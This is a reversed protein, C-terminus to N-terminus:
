SRLIDINITLSDLSWKYIPQDFTMVSSSQGGVYYVQCSTIPYDDNTITGNGGSFNVCLQFHNYDLNNILNPKTRTYGISAIEGQSDFLAVKIDSSYVSQAVSDKVYATLQRGTNELANQKQAEQVMALANLLVETERLSTLTLTTTHSNANYKMGTIRFVNQTGSTYNLLPNDDDIVRIVANRDFIVGYESTNIMPHLGSVTVTGITQPKGYIERLALAIDLAGEYTDVSKANKLVYEKRFGIATEMEPSDVVCIIPQPESKSVAVYESNFHNYAYTSQPDTKSKVVFRSYMNSYDQEVDVKIIYKMWNPDEDRTSVTYQHATPSTYNFDDLPTSKEFVLTAQVDDRHMWIQGQKMKAITQLAGWVTTQAANLYHMPWTTPDNYGVGETDDTYNADGSVVINNWDDVLSSVKKVMDAVSSKNTADLLGGVPNAYYDLKILNTDLYNATIPTFQGSAAEFNIQRAVNDLTYHTNPTLPRFGGYMVSFYANYVDYMKSFLNMDSLDEDIYANNSQANSNLDSKLGVNWAERTAIEANEIAVYEWAGGAVYRGNYGPTKALTSFAAEGHTGIVMHTNDGVASIMLNGNAYRPFEDNSQLYKSIGVAWYANNSLGLGGTTGLNPTGDNTIDVGTTTCVHEFVIAIRDNANVQIPNHEFNWEFLTYAKAGSNDFMERWEYTRKIVEGAPEHPAPIPNKANVDISAATGDAHYLVDTHPYSYMGPSVTRWNSGTPATWEMGSEGSTPIYDGKKVMQPPTHTTSGITDNDIPAARILSIRLSSDNGLDTVGNRRAPDPTGTNNFAKMANGIFTGPTWDGTLGAIQAEYVHRVVAIPVAINTITTNKPVTFVQALMKTAGNKAEYPAVNPMSANDLDVNGGLGRLSNMPPKQYVAEWQMYNANDYKNLLHNGETHRAQVIVPSSTEADAPLDVHYITNNTVNIDTGIGDKFQQYFKRNLERAGGRASYDDAELKVTKPRSKFGITKITGYFLYSTTNLHNYLVAVHDSPRLSDLENTHNDLTAEVASIQRYTHNLTFEGKVDLYTAGNAFTGTTKYVRLTPRVDNVIFPQAM